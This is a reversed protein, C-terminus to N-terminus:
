DGRFFTAESTCGVAGGLGAEIVQILGFYRLHIEKSTTNTTDAVVM